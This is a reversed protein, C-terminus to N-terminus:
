IIFCFCIQSVWDMIRMAISIPSVTMAFFGSMGIPHSPTVAIAWSPSVILIIVAIAWSTAAFAAAIPSIVAITWSPAAIPSIVAPLSLERCRSYLWYTCNRNM